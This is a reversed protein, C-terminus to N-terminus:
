RAGWREVEVATEPAAHVSIEAGPPMAARERAALSGTRSGKVEFSLSGDLVVIVDWRHPPVEWSEFIGGHEAHEPFPGLIDLRVLGDPIEGADCAKCEVPTGVREQRTTKDLVWPRNELLPRHRMHQSHLCDLDAVWDGQQDQHFSAITRKM